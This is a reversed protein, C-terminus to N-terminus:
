YADPSNTDPAYVFSAKASFDESHMSHGGYHIKKVINDGKFVVGDEPYLVVTYGNRVTSLLSTATLSSTRPITSVTNASEIASNAHASQNRIRDKVHEPMDRFCSAPDHGRHGCRACVNPINQKNLWNDGSSTRHHHRPTSRHSSRGGYAAHAAESSPSVVHRSEEFSSLQTGLSDITWDASGNKDQSALLTAIVEFSPHLNMLVVDRIEDAKLPHGISALESTITRITTLFISIPESPNHELHYLRRRLSM